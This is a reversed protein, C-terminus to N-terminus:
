VVPSYFAPFLNTSKESTGHHVSGSEQLFLCLSRVLQAPNSKGLLASMDSVQVRRLKSSEKNEMM